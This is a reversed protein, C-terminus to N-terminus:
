SRHRQLRKLLEFCSIFSHYRFYISCPCIITENIVGWAERGMLDSQGETSRAQASWRLAVFVDLIWFSMNFTCIVILIRRVNKQSSILVAQSKMLLLFVTQYFGTLFFLLSKVVSSPSKSRGEVFAIIGFTDYTVSGILSLLYLLDVLKLSHGDHQKILCFGYFIAILIVTSNLSHIFQELNVFVRENYMWDPLRVTTWDTIVSIANTFIFFIFVIRLKLSLPSSITLDEHVELTDRINSTREGTWILFRTVLIFFELEAPTLYVTVAEFIHHYKSTWFCGRTVNSIINISHNESIGNSTKNQLVLVQFTSRMWLWLNTIIIVYLSLKGKGLSEFDSNSAATLFLLLLLIYVFKALRYVTAVHFVPDATWCDIDIVAKITDLSVLCIGFIWIISLQVKLMPRNSGEVSVTRRWNLYRCCGMYIVASYGILLVALSTIDKNDFKDFYVPVNIYIILVTAVISFLTWVTVVSVQIFNM